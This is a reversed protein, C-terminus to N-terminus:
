TRITPFTKSMHDHWTLSEEDALSWLVGLGASCFSLCAGVFRIARERRDIPSGDFNILRLGTWQQGATASGTLVWLLGYFLAIALFAGGFGLGIGSNIKEFEGGCLHFTLLFLGIAMVIMSFDLAAGVARHTPTAVPADCYIVAEVSTKLTRPAHPAPPLFDLFAQSDSAQPTARRTRPRPEHAERAKQTSPFQLVKGGDPDHFLRTQRPVQNRQPAPPPPADVWERAPAAATALTSPYAPNYSEPAPRAAATAM